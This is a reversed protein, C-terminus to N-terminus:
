YHLFQLLLKRQIQLFKEYRRVVVHILKAQFHEIVLLKKFTNLGSYNGFIQFLVSPLQEDRNVNATMPNKRM